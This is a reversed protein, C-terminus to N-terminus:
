TYFLDGGFWDDAGGEYNIITTYGAVAALQAAQQSRLGAKCTFVLTDEVNPKPFKFQAEFAEANMNFAGMSAIEPLPFVKVIESMVGTGMMIEDANRVDLVIYNADGTGNEADALIQAM